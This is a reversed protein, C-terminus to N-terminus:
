KGKKLYLGIHSALYSICTVKLLQVHVWDETTKM